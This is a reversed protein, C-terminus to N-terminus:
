KPAKEGPEKGKPEKKEGGEERGEEGEKEKMELSPSLRGKYVVIKFEEKLREILDKFVEEEKERRKANQVEGKVEEFTKIREPIRERMKFLYYRDKVRIPASSVEGPKLSFLHGHVEPDNGIGTITGGKAVEEPIEGGNKKTEEDVSFENACEEFPKGLKLAELAEQAQPEGETVILSVRAKEPVRYIEKHAEYYDKLDSDSIAIRKRFEDQIVKQSFFRQRVEELEKEIEPDQGLKRRLAERELIAQNVMDELISERMRPSQFQELIREKQEQIADGSLFSEYQRVQMEVMEEIRRKVDALTIRKEGIEALVVSHDGGEEGELSTRAQIEVSLGTLNGLRRFCEARLRDMEGTLADLKAVLESKYFSELAKEFAGDEMYLQGVQFLKRARAERSLDASELFKEWTRAAPGKLNRNELRSALAELGYEEERSEGRGRPKSFLQLFLLVLLLLFTLISFFAGLRGGKKKERQSDGPLSFDLEERM